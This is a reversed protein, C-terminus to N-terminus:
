RTERVRQLRRQLRNEIRNEPLWHIRTYSQRKTWSLPFEHRRQFEPREYFGLMHKTIQSVRVFQQDIEDLM